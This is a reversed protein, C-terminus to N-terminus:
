GKANEAHWVLPVDADVPYRGAPQGNFTGYAKSFLGHKTGSRAFCGGAASKRFCGAKLEPNNEAATQLYADLTQAQLSSFSLVAIIIVIWKPLQLLSTLSCGKVELRWGGIKMQKEM